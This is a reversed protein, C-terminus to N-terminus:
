LNRDTINSYYRRSQQQEDSDGSPYSLWSPLGAQEDLDPWLGPGSKEFLENAKNRIHESTHVQPPKLGAYNKNIETFGKLLDTIVEPCTGSSKKPFSLGLQAKLDKITTTM